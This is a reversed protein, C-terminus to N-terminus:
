DMGRSQKLMTGNEVMYVQRDRDTLERQGRKANDKHRMNVQLDREIWERQQTEAKYV